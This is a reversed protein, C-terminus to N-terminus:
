RPRKADHRGGHRSTITAGLTPTTLCRAHLNGGDHDLSIVNERCAAADRRSDLNYPAKDINRVLMATDSMM